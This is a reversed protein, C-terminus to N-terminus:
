KVSLYYIKTDGYKKEANLEFSEQPFVFPTRVSEEYILIGDNALLEYQAIKELLQNPDTKGYPPDIFILDFSGSFRELVSEAKGKIVTCTGKDALRVNQKVLNTDTDVFTSHSAGRSVAELGYSGTGCFLDLVRANEVLDYLSSFVANRVKDTTPRVSSDKPTVLQRNKM